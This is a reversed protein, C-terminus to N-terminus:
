NFQLFHRRCLPQYSEAAGVTPTGGITADSVTKSVASSFRAPTGDGCLKCLAYIRQVEDALPILELIKGFPKRHADGDLGVVVVHKGDKEVVRLVFEVLDDFFQGEEVVVLQADTYDNWELCECLRSCAVAQCSQLDHNVIENNTDPNALYRTDISHKIVLVNWGIAKRRRVISQLASSKGAFMPGIILELSM